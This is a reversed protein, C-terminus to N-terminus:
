RPPCCSRRWWAPTPPPGSRTARGLGRALVYDIRQDLERAAVRNSLDAAHCCTFGAAGPRLERWADRFGAAALVQYMPSGAVDNLDGLLIVPAASGLSAVLEGAQAARLLALGGAPDNGSELHTSAVVVPMGAITAAIAVWGRVLNVGPAVVGINATFTRQALVADVAVRDGDVLIADHDVLSIGPLPAAVLNQVQAAVHYHLGRAALEAQVIALFDLQVVIPLGLGRLDIDLREVEQLGVVHPRHTAIEDALAAARAPFATHELTGIAAVLAPLDDTPDPSALAAIVVDVDAGIYLNRTMAVIRPAAAPSPSPTAARSADLAAPGAPALLNGDSCATLGAVTLPMLALAFRVLRTM